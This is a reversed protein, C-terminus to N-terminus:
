PHFNLCRDSSEFEYLPVGTAKRKEMDGRQNRRDEGVDGCVSRKKGDVDDGHKRQEESSDKRRTKDDEDLFHSEYESHKMKLKGM